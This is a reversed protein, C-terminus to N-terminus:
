GKLQVVSLSMVTNVFGLLVLARKIVEYHALGMFHCGEPIYSRTTENFYDSTESTRVEAMMLAIILIRPDDLFYLSNPYLSFYFFIM